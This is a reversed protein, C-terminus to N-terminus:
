YIQYPLDFRGETITLKEGNNSKLTCELEGSIFSENFVSIYVRSTHMTDIFYEGDDFRPSNYESRFIRKNIPFMYSTTDPHFNELRIGFHEVYFDGNSPFFKLTMSLLDYEPQLAVFIDENNGVGEQPIWVEGNVLCGFTGAGEQTIPVRRNLEELPTENPPITPQLSDDDDCSTILLFLPFLLFLYRM